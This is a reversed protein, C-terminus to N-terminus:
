VSSLTLRLKSEGRFLCIHILNFKFWDAHDRITWYPLLKIIAVQNPTGYPTIQFFVNSQKPPLCAASSTCRTNVSFTCKCRQLRSRVNLKTSKFSPWPWGKDFRAWGNISHSQTTFIFIEVQNKTHQYAYARLANFRHRVRHDEIPQGKSTRWFYSM